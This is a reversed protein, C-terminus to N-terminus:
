CDRPSGGHIVVTGCPEQDDAATYCAEGCRCASRSRPSLDCDNIDSAFGAARAPKRAINPGRWCALDHRGLIGVAVRRQTVGEDVAEGFCDLPNPACANLDACRLAD